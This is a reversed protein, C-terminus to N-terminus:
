ASSNTLLAGFLTDAKDNYGAFIKQTITRLGRAKLFSVVEENEKKFVSCTIYVLMGGERLSSIASSVIKKQLDSYYDIKNMTAFFLQEPTRAWTGSGSCPVDAIILDFKKSPLEGSAIDFVGAEYNSIGAQRFREQLNQIIQKRIDTSTLKINEIVDFALISKGGSGACCDWVEISDSRIQEAAVGILEGTRQSSMDQVVVERNIQLINEVNTGNTLSICNPIPESYSVGAQNLKMLVEERKGPRIRLYLDPQVLMSDPFASADVGESLQEPWPFVGEKTHEKPNTINFHKKMEGLGPSIAIADLLRDAINDYRTHGLRYYNYVIESLTKRDRSGMQKHDRFFQRLWSSLPTRGDYERVIMEAYRLQNGYM